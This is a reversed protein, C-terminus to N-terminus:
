EVNAAQEKFQDVLGKLTLGTNTLDLHISKSCLTNAERNLEQSLFDLKRGIPSGAALYDHASALHASLRDLEERVDAKAASVAIEAALRDADVMAGAGLEAIQKELREKLLAPQSSALGAAKAAEAEMENTLKGMIALLSAGEDERSTKLKAFVDELGAAIIRSVADNAALERTSSSGTEVVGKLSMLAALAPGGPREGGNAKAHAEILTALAAENVTISAGDQPTEIKLSVNVAGRKFQKAAAAKAAREFAEFGPPYSVRVDLGRSNVSKAEWAWNGWDAEGSVRAFGTMGSLVAM